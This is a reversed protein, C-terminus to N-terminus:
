HLIREHSKSCGSPPPPPVVTTGSLIGPGPTTGKGGPGTPVPGPTGPQGSPPTGGTGPKGYDPGPTGPQSPGPTPPKGGYADQRVFRSSSSLHMM